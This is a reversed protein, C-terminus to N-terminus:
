SGGPLRSLVDLLDAQSIPKQLYAVAGLSRALQPDELVSCIIVPISRTVPDSKLVQLIEWGDQTPMMIDLTIAIPSVERALRLAEDGSTAGMVVYGYTALYGQFVRVIGENDEIALLVKGDM